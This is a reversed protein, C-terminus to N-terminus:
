EFDEFPWDIDLVKHQGELKDKGILRDL